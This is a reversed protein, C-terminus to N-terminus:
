PSKTRPLVHIKTLFTHIARRYQEPYRHFHRGHTSVTWSSVTVDLARERRWHEMIENVSQVDSVRDDFSCFVLASGHVPGRRFTDLVKKRFDRRGSFALWYLDASKESLYQVWRSLMQVPLVTQSGTTLSDFIQGSIKRKAVDYKRPHEMMENLVLAYLYDGFSVSHFVFRSTNLPTENWTLYELIQRALTRGSAPYLLHRFRGRVALVDLGYSHYIGSYEDVVHQSALFPFLVIVLSRTRDHTRHVETSDSDESRHIKRLEINSAVKITSVRDFQKELSSRRTLFLINRIDYTVHRVGSSDWTWRPMCHRQVSGLANRANSWLLRNCIRISCSTRRGLCSM